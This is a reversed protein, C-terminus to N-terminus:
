KEEVTKVETTEPVVPDEFFWQMKTNLNVSEDELGHQIFLVIKRQVRDDTFEFLKLMDRLTNDLSLRHATGTCKAMLDAVAAKFGGGFSTFIRYNESDVKKEPRYTKLMLPNRLKFARSAPDDLGGNVKALALALIEMRIM